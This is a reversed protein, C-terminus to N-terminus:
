SFYRRFLFPEAISSVKGAAVIGYGLVFAAAALFLAAVAVDVPTRVQCVCLSLRRRCCSIFVRPLCSAGAVVVITGRTRGHWVEDVGRRGVRGAGPPPARRTRVPPVHLGRPDGPLHRQGGSSSPSPDFPTSCPQPNPDLFFPRTTVQAYGELIAAAGEAETLKIITRCIRRTKM